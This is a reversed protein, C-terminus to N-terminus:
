NSEAYRSIRYHESMSLMEDGSSDVMPCSHITTQKAVLFLTEEGRPIVM